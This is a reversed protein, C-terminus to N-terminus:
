GRRAAPRPRATPRPLLATARAGRGQRKTATARRPRRASGRSVLPYREPREIRHVDLDVDLAPWRIVHGREVEITSLERITAEAFWPFARFPLFLERRLPEWFLWFGRGSVHVVEAVSTSRGRRASRM